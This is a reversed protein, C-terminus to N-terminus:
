AARMRKYYMAFQPITAPDTELYDNESTPPTFTGTGPWRAVGKTFRVCDIQGNVTNSTADNQTGIIAGINSGYTQSTTTGLSSGDSLCVGRLYIRIVNGSERQIALHNWNGDNIDTSPISRNVGSQHHLRISGTGFSNVLVVWTNNVGFTGNIAMPSYTTTKTTKIWCDWTFLGDFQLQTGAGTNATTLWDGTGDLALAGSGFKPSATSVQANGVATVAWGNSSTDTFSTSGNSGNCLLLLSVSAFDADAM